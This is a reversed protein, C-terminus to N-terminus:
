LREILFSRLPGPHTQSRDSDSYYGRRDASQRWVQKRCDFRTQCRDDVPHRHHHLDASVLMTNAFRSWAAVITVPMMSFTLGIALADISTAIAMVFMVSPKMSGNVNEEGGKLAERIMNSGILALLIFGIWASFAEIYGAFMSGLIYGIAPMLGQFVGFWLGACLCEKFGIKKLALGKAISVAFADMSLGIALILVTILSM